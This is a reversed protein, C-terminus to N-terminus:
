RCTTAARRGSVPNMTLADYVAGHMMALHMATVQNTQEAGSFLADLGYMNWTRVVDSGETPPETGASARDVAAAAPVVVAVLGVACRRARRDPRSRLAAFTTM